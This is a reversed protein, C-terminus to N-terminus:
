SGSRFARRLQLGELAVGSALRLALASPPPPAKGLPVILAINDRLTRKGRPLDRQNALAEAT